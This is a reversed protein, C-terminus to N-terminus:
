GNTAGTGVSGPRWLALQTPRAPPPMWRGAVTVYGGAWSAVVGLAKLDDLSHFKTKMRAQIIRTASLPGIGPVRLLQQRTATNVEVPFAEPHRAAWVRKPDADLPLNGQEDFALEGLNFGYRRFLFDTQYLRHERILPAAPQGELESGPVPQFASFYARSLRLAKYLKDTTQLIERDSEDAAGVVFQTTHGKCRVGSRGALRSIWEMRKLIGTTFDKDPSIRSLRAANPAELNISIREALEAAREIRDYSAGPLVKLHIFGGFKHAQRLREATALMRDMTADPSGHVASSLFLGQALGRRNLEVFLRSLEDPSFASREHGSTRRTACYGCNNCCDNSMLVKLLRITEGNPMAAPYIWRGVPGRARGSGKVGGVCQNSCCLDFQASEGLTEIKDFASMSAAVVDWLVCLVACGYPLWSVLLCSNGPRMAEEQGGNYWGTQCKAWVKAQLASASAM